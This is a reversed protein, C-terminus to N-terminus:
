RTDYHQRMYEVSKQIHQEPVTEDVDALRRIYLCSKGIKCKGLRPMLKDFHGFGPMVYVGPARRRPSYGTIM